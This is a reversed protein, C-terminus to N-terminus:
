EIVSIRKHTSASAVHINPYILPQWGLANWKLSLESHKTLFVPFVSSRYTGIWAVVVDTNVEMDSYSM